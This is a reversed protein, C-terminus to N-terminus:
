AGYRRLWVDTDYRVAERRAAVRKPAVAMALGRVAVPRIGAVARLGATRARWSDGEAAHRYAATLNRAAANHRLGVRVAAREDPGGERAAHELVARRAEGMADDSSVGTRSLRYLLTPHDPRVVTAGARVMRIWLDWDETGHFQSRFGGVADYRARTFLSSISLRNETLLWNLQEHPPPLPSGVSLPKDSVAQNPIWALPDASALGDDTTAHAAQMAALHDPFWVDDADLLALLPASAAQIATHRAVAPGKPGGTPVVRLPLRGAFSRAIAITDDTCGDDGIVVEAPRVTQAVVAELAESITAAAQFAPIIVAVDM